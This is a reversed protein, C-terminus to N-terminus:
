KRAQRPVWCPEGHYAKANTVQRENKGDIDITYIHDEGMRKAHFAIQKGDPSVAIEQYFALDDTIQKKEKTFINLRFLDNHEQDREDSYHYTYVIDASNPLWSTYKERKESQTLRTLIGTALQYTYLEGNGDRDSIFSFYQENPSWKARGNYSPHDVLLRNAGTKVDMIGIYRNQNDKLTYLAYSGSPSLIFEELGKTDIPSDKGELDMARITFQNATDSSNYLIAQLSANWAPAWDWGPNSTLQQTPGGKADKMFLDFNGSQNSLYVISHQGFVLQACCTVVLFCLNKM